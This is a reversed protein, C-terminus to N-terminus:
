VTNHVQQQENLLNMEAGNTFRFCYTSYKLFTQFAFKVVPYINNNNDSHVFSNEKYSILIIHIKEFKINYLYVRYQTFLYVVLM